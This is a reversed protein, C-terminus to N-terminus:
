DAPRAENKIYPNVVIAFVGIFCRAKTQTWFRNIKKTDDFGCRRNETKSHSKIKEFVYGM